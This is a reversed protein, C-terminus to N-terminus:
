QSVVVSGHWGAKGRDAQTGPDGKVGDSPNLATMTGSGPVIKRPGSLGKTKPRRPRMSSVRGSSCRMRRRDMANLTLALYAKMYTSHQAWHKFSFDLMRRRLDDDIVGGYWDASPYRSLIYNLTTVEYWGGRDKSLIDAIRTDIHHRKLYRWARVSVDMPVEVGFELAKAFGHMLYLTMGPSPRGGPFWPFGGIATQSKRLKQLSAARQAAAVRPDLVKELDATGGGEAENLWPTEELAIKRNPDNGDFRELRTNRKSLSKAMRAVAPYQAYLSSLIGTALFRNLTQETCEYPYNVTRSRRWCGGLLQGDADCGHILQHSLDDNRALDDIEGPGVRALVCLTISCPPGVPFCRFLVCNVM